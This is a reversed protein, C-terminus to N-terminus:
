RGKLLGDISQEKECSYLVILLHPIVKISLSNESSLDIFMIM